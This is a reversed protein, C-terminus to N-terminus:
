RMIPILPTFREESIGVKTVDKQTSLELLDKLAM